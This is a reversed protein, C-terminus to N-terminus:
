VRLLTKLTMTTDRRSSKTHRNEIEGRREGFLGGVGVCVRNRCYPQRVLVTGCNDKVKM